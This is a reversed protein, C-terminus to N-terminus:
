MGVILSLNFLSSSSCLCILLSVSLLRSNNVRGVSASTRIDIIIITANAEIGVRLTFKVGRNRPTNAAATKFSKGVIFDASEALAVM